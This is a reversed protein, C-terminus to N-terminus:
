AARDFDSDNVKDDLSINFGDKGAPANNHKVKNNSQGRSSSRSVGKAAGSRNSTTQFFSATSLLQEAQSTLEESTASLEETSASNSQIVMDLQTIAKTVQDIGSSQESSSANIEQVLEATKQIGPVIDELIKGANQAIEVSSTSVLSIEKAATQSREALKRVEAAVVAFGKGHEGARAAEIAANLALMNTQRAIEEIINIKEAISQMAKVTEAVAAGGQQGDKASKTAIGATQQANDANQKVTSNMEEMSASVEEISSAQETAGQALAQAAGNVQESGSAVLSAASQVEDAFRTLNVIMQEMANGMVDKDSKPNAKVTLNGEAIKTACVANESLNQIMREMATGMVDRDSKPNAKVALDGEAIKTACAANETLNIIMREMANGMVDKASKPNAKVALDGESIKTACAANESLNAIMRQMSHGMIDKESKIEVKASLDGEAILTACDASARITNVMEKMSRSMDGVEDQGSTDVVVDIDGIALQEAIVKLKNIPVCIARSIFIALAIALMVGVSLGAIATTNAKAATKVNSTYLAKADAVKMNKINDIAENLAKAVPAADRLVKLAQDDKNELAFQILQTQVPLYNAQAREYASYADKMKSSVITSKFKSATDSLQTSLDEITQIYKKSEAPTKSMLADRLNVRIRNYLVAMDGAQDLPVTMNNFMKADASSMVHNSLIGSFAIAAVIGAMLIFAVTLKKGIKLNGFWKM